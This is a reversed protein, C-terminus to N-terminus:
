LFRQITVRRSRGICLTGLWDFDARSIGDGGGGNFGSSMKLFIDCEAIIIHTM